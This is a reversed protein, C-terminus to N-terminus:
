RREDRQEAGCANSDAKRKLSRQAIEGASQHQQEEAGLAPPLGAGQGSAHVASSASVVPQAPPESEPMKTIKSRKFHGPRLAQIVSLWKAQRSSQSCAVSPLRDFGGAGMDPM